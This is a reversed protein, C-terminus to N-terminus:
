VVQDLKSIRNYVSYSLGLSVASLVVAVYEIAEPDILGPNSQGLLLAAFLVGYFTIFAISTGNHITKWSRKSDNFHEIENVISIHLILGFVVFDAANLVEM